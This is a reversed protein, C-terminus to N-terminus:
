KGMTKTVDKIRLGRASEAQGDIGESCSTNLNWRELAASLTLCCAESLCFGPRIRDSLREEGCVLWGGSNPLQCSLEMLKNGISFSVDNSHCFEPCEM